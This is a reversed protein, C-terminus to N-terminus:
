PKRAILYINRRNGKQNAVVECKEVKFGSSEVLNKFEKKSFWHYYRKTKNAWPELIDKFDLKSLGLIKLFTYKILLLIEKPQHFKWVTLILLGGPKLIRKAEALFQKRIEKSPFHHFVAISYVKDFYNNKFPLKLADAAIFDGDAHKEKAIRVLKESSDTGIYEVKKDKFLNYYRGNGCGLDLVVDNEKLYDKFLFSVEEWPNQRTRSFDESILNYDEKTKSILYEAYEKRM